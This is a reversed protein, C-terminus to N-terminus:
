PRPLRRLAPTLPATRPRRHRTDPSLSTVVDPREATGEAHEIASFVEHKAPSSSSLRPLSYVRTAPKGCTECVVSGPAQGIPWRREIEGDQECRYAYIAM